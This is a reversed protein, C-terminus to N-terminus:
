RDLARRSVLIRRRFRGSDTSDAIQQRIKCSTAPRYRRLWDDAVYGLSTADTNMPLIATIEQAQILAIRFTDDLDTPSGGFCRCVGDIEQQAGNVSTAQQTIDARDQGILIGVYCAQRAM